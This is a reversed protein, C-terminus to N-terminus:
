PVVPWRTTSFRGHSGSYRTEGRQPLAEVVPQGFVSGSIVRGQPRATRVVLDLAQLVAEVEREVLVHPRGEGQVVADGPSPCARLRSRKEEAVAEQVDVSDQVSV